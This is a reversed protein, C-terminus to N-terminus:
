DNERPMVKDLYATLRHVVQDPKISEESLDRIVGEFATDRLAYEAAGYVIDDNYQPYKGVSSRTITELMLNLRRRCEKSGRQRISEAGALNDLLTRVAAAMSERTLATSDPAEMPIKIELAKFGEFRRPRKGGIKENVEKALGDLDLTRDTHILNLKADLNWTKEEKTLVKEELFSIEQHHHGADNVVINYSWGLYLPQLIRAATPMILQPSDIDILVGGNNNVTEGNVMISTKDFLVEEYAVQKRTNASVSNLVVEMNRRDTGSFFVSLAGHSHIWGVVVRDEKGAREAAAAISHGLMSTYASENSSNEELYVETVTSPDARESVLLGYWERSSGYNRKVNYCIARSKRFVYDQINIAQPFPTDVMGVLKKQRPRLLKELSEKDLAM